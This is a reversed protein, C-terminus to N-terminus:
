SDQSSQISLTTRRRGPSAPQTGPRAKAPRAPSPAGAQVETGPAPDLNSSNAASISGRATRRRHKHEVIYPKISRM